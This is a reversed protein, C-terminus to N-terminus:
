QKEGVILEEAEAQLAQVEMDWALYEDNKCLQRLQEFVSKAEESRGLERFSMVKFALNWPDPDEGANSFIRESTGLTKLADEYSCLRYQAAGMTIFYLKVM